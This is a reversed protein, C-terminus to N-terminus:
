FDNNTLNNAFFFALISPTLFIKGLPLFPPMFNQFERVQTSCVNGPCLGCSYPCIEYVLHDDSFAFNCTLGSFYQGLYALMDPCNQLFQRDLDNQVIYDHYQGTLVMDNNDFCPASFVFGILKKKKKESLFLINDIVVCCSIKNNSVFGNIAFFVSFFIKDTYM